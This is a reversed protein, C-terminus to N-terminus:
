SKQETTLTSIEAVLQTVDESEVPQYINCGFDYRVQKVDEVDEEDEKFITHKGSWVVKEKERYEWMAKETTQELEETDEEDDRQVNEKNVESENNNSKPSIPQELKMVVEANGEDDFKIHTGNWKIPQTEQKTEVTSSVGQTM